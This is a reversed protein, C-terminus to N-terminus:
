TSCMCHNPNSELAHPVLISMTVELKLIAATSEKQVKETVQVNDGVKGEVTTLRNLIKANTETMFRQLEAVM